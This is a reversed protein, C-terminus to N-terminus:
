ASAIMNFDLSEILVIVFEFNIPSVDVSFIRISSCPPHPRSPTRDKATWYSKAVALRCRPGLAGTNNVATAYGRVAINDDTRRKAKKKAKCLHM